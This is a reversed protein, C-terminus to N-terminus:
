STLSRAISRCYGSQGRRSLREVCCAMRILRSKPYRKPANFLPVALRQVFRRDRTTENFNRAPLAAERVLM